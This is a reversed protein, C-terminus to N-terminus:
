HAQTGSLLRGQFYSMEEDTGPNQQSMCDGLHCKSKRLEQLAKKHIFLVLALPNLKMQSLGHRAIRDQVCLTGSGFCDLLENILTTLPLAVSEHM